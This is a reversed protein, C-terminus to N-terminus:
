RWAIENDERSKDIEFRHTRVFVQFVKKGPNVCGKELLDTNAEGQLM